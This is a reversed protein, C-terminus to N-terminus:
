QEGNNEDGEKLTQKITHKANDLEEVASEILANIVPTIEVGHTQLLAVVAKKKDAGTVIMGTEGMKEAAQVFQKVTTYLQKDQLWPIIVTKLYYTVVASIAIIAAKLVYTLAEQLIENM